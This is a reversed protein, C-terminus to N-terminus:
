VRSLLNFTVKRELFVSQETNWLRISSNTSGFIFVVENQKNEMFGHGDISLLGPFRLQNILETLFEDLEISNEIHKTMMIRGLGFRGKEGTM